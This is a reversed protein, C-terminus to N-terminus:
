FARTQGVFFYGSSVGGDCANYLKASVDLVWKTFLESNAFNSLLTLSTNARLTLLSTTAM